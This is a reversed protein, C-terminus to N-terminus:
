LIKSAEELAKAYYIDIPQDLIMKIEEDNDIFFPEFIVCPATTNKLLYGGREYEVRPISGRNKFGFNEFVSNMKKSIEFGKKSGKFFLSECGSQKKDFANCHMEVIFNPSSGNLKEVLERMTFDRYFIEVDVFKSHKLQELIKDALNCNYIFENLGLKTNIAQKGKETHGVVLALKKKM